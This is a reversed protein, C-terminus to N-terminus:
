STERLHKQYILGSSWAILLISIISIFTIAFALYDRKKRIKKGESLFNIMVPQEELGRTALGTAIALSSSIKGPINEKTINKLPNPLHVKAEIQNSIQESVFSDYADVGTVIINDLDDENSLAHLAINLEQIIDKGLPNEEEEKIESFLDDKEPDKKQLSGSTESIFIDELHNNNSRKLSRTIKIQKGDLIGFEISKEGIDILGTLSNEEISNQGILWNMGAISTIDVVPPTKQGSEILNCLHQVEDNKVIAVLLHFTSEEQRIIHYDFIVDEAPYPTHRELEYRLMSRLEKEEVKPMTIEKLIVKEKPLGIVIQDSKIGRQRIFNRLDLCLPDLEGEDRKQKHLPYKKMFYDILVIGKFTRGLHVMRLTNDRLDIGLSQQLYIM